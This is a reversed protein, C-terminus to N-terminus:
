VVAAHCGACPAVPMGCTDAVRGTGQCFAGLKRVEASPESSLYGTYDDDKEELDLHGEASASGGKLHAYGTTHRCRDVQRGKFKNFSPQVVIDFDLESTELSYCLISVM